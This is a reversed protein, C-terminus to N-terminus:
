RRSWCGKSELWPLTGFKGYLWLAMDINAYPDDKRMGLAYQPTMRETGDLIQFYGFATSKSNPVMRWKSECYAIDNLLNGDYGYEGSRIRLYERPPPKIVTTTKETEELDRVVSVFPSSDPLASAVVPEVFQAELFPRTAEAVHIYYFGSAFVGATGVALSVFMTRIYPHLGTRKQVHPHIKQTRVVPM